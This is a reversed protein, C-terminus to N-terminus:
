TRYSQLKSFKLSCKVLSPREYEGSTSGALRNMLYSKGTRYLGAIAIVVCPQDLQKLEELAEVKVQLKGDKATDILCQPERFIALKSHNPMRTTETFIDKM